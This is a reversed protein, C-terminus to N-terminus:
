APPLMLKSTLNGILSLLEEISENDKQLHTLQISMDDTVNPELYAAALQEMHERRERLTRQKERVEQSITIVSVAIGVVPIHKPLEKITANLFEEAALLAAENGVAKGAFKIWHPTVGTDPPAPDTRHSFASLRKRLYRVLNQRVDTVPPAPDTRRIFASLLNLRATLLGVAEEVAKAVDTEAVVACAMLIENRKVAEHPANLFAQAKSIADLGELDAGSPFPVSMMKLALSELNSVLALLLFGANSALPVWFDGFRPLEETLGAVADDRAPSVAPKLSGLRELATKALEPGTADYTDITKIFDARAATILVTSEDLAAKYDFPPEHDTM